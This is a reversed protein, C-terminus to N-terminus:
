VLLCNLDPHAAKLDAAKWDQDVYNWVISKGSSHLEEQALYLDPKVDLLKKADISHKINHVALMSRPVGKPYWFSDAMQDQRMHEGLAKALEIGSMDPIDGPPMFPVDFRCWQKLAKAKWLHWNYTPEDYPTNYVEDPVNSGTLWDQYMDVLSPLAASSFTVVNSQSWRQEQMGCLEPNSECAWDYAHYGNHFGPRDPDSRADMSWWHVQMIPYPYKDNSEEATRQFLYDMQGKMPVLMEDADMFIATKARALIQARFKSSYHKFSDATYAELHAPVLNPFKSSPWYQLLQQFQKQDGVHFVVAPNDSAYHVATIWKDVLNAHQNDDPKAFPEAFFLYTIYARDTWGSSDFFKAYTQEHTSAVYFDLLQKLQPDKCLSKVANRFHKGAKSVAGTRDLQCGEIKRLVAVKPAVASEVLSGGDSEPTPARRTQTQSIPQSSGQSRQMQLRVQMLGLADESVIPSSAACSARGPAREVVSTSDKIDSHLGSDIHIVEACVATAVAALLVAIM